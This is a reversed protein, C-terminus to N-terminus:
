IHFTINYITLRYNPGVSTLLTFLAVIETDLYMNHVETSGPIPHTSYREM